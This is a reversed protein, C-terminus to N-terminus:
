PWFEMAKIAVALLVCCVLAWVYEFAACPSSRIFALPKM